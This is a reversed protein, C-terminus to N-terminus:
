VKSDTVTYSTILRVILDNLKEVKFDKTTAKIHSNGVGSDDTLFVYTGNTSVSFFRMLFEVDKNADSAVIPIIKIGKEQALKIQEKILTVNKQTFHPPADLLLFLLKAKANPSWDQQLSVKLAEEVAEEYDGGGSANQKVLNEQMLSIDTTFGFPKTVYADGFDRYFNLALRKEEVSTDIRDIINALEVKLYNIEDAMSGTADITFMIDVVNSVRNKTTVFNVKTQNTKLRKGVVTGANVMQITYCDNETFEFLDKFLVTQGKIDTRASMILKLDDTYLKVLVNSVPQQNNDLVSVDIKHELGFGWKTKLTNFQAQKLIELWENWKELDNIEGATLISHTTQNKKISRIESVDSSIAIGSVKGMLRKVDSIDDSEVYTSHAVFEGKKRKIGLATVVIEDLKADQELKVDIKTKAGIFIDTSKFGVYTFTLTDTKTATINYNGDFDSSTGITKGKVIITAGPLPVGTNDTIVGSVTIDQAKTSLTAAVIVLFTILNKM